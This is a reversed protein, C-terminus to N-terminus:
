KGAAWGPITPFLKEAVRLLVADDPARGDERWVTVDYSGGGDKADRAVTLARAPVGPGTTADSGDLRFGISVTQQSYLVAPRGLFTREQAGYGLLTASGKVPFQDYSASLTVTYSEFEVRASPTAIEKAGAPGTSADSGSASKAIEGPTGLLEALDSRNLVACLRAGSVTRSSEASKKADKGPEGGSCTAPTPERDSPTTGGLAWVGGGLAAVLVLAASAQAWASPGKSKAATSIEDGM